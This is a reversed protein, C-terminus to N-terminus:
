SGARRPVPASGRAPTAPSRGTSGPLALAAPTAPAFRNTLRISWRPRRTVVPASRIQAGELGESHIGDVPQRARLVDRQELRQPGAREAGYQGGVFEAGGEHRGAVVAGRPPDGREEGNRPRAEGVRQGSQGLRPVVRRRQQVDGARRRRLAPASELQLREILGGHGRGHDLSTEPDPTLLLDLGTDALRQAGRRLSLRPRHQHLDARAATPPRQRAM